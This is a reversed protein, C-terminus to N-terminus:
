QGPGEIGSNVSRSSHSGPIAITEVIETNKVAAIEEGKARRAMTWHLLEIATKLVETRSSAGMQEKLHDVKKIIQEPFIFQVRRKAMTNTKEV